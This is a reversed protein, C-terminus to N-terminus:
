YCECVVYQKQYVLCNGEKYDNPVELLNVGMKEFLEEYM